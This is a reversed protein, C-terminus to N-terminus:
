QYSRVLNTLLGYLSVVLWILALVFAPLNFVGTILFCLVACTGITNVAQNIMGNGRWRSAQVLFYAIVVLSIGLFGVVDPVTLTFSM